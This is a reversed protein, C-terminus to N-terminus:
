NKLIERAIFGTDVAGEAFTPNHLIDLQFEINTDIGNIVFEHLARQMKAIAQARDKGHTIVKAIMSDYYPPITYGAFMASDVRLGLGGSPMHMYAIKGPSPAFGRAPNEANIRCELAHGEMKVASQKIDLPQGAAIRIQWEVIDIGTVMETVPHEVQIRTNMEMFMFQGDKYLFEITGANKYNAAKAALVAAKGIQKRLEKTLAVSPAEELVKQNRRQLSCDREGLHLVNGHEDALIQVEIHRANTIVKEMYISDDGFAAKAEVKAADFQARLEEQSSVMRIGKGGGGASAKIMVPFGMKEAAKEAEEYTDLLGDTGPIVPVGAEIMLKRANSKNGMLGISAPDPGIFKISCEGCMSAFVENESLFGFGPHIAQAGTNFAASIINNMNLYSDVARPPGICVAEDALQVHLADKDAQSYVAVSAIGMEKLCRIVRVAIEGRNAILVKNFM